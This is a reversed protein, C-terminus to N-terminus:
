LIRIKKLRLSNVVVSVSSMSMAAAAIIPNLLIGLFPYLVWKSNIENKGEHGSIEDVIQEFLKRQYSYNIQWYINDTGIKLEDSHQVYQYTNLGERRKDEEQPNKIQM